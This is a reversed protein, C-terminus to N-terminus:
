KNEYTDKVNIKDQNATDVADGNSQSVNMPPVRLAELDKREIPEVTKQEQKVEEAPDEEEPMSYGFKGKDVTEVSNESVFTSEIPKLYRILLFYLIGCVLLGLLLGILVKNVVKMVRKM